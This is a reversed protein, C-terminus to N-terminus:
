LDGSPSTFAVELFKFGGEGCPLVPELGTGPVLLFRLALRDVRVVGMGFAAVM